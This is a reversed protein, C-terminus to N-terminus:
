REPLFADWADHTDQLKTIETQIQGLQARLEPIQDDPPPTTDDPPNVFFKNLSLLKNLTAGFKPNMVREGPPDAYVSVASVLMGTVFAMGVFASLLKKNM